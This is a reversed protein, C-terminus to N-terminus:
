LEIKKSMLYVIAYLAAIITVVEMLFQGTTLNYWSVQEFISEGESVSITQILGIQPIINDTGFLLYAIWGLVSQIAIFSIIGIWIRHKVKFSAAIAIALMIMIHFSLTCWLSFIFLSIIPIPKGWYELLETFDISELRPIMLSALIAGIVILSVAYILQLLLSAAIEQVPKVSLLRRNYSNLHSNFTSCVQLFLVIFAAAFATLSLGVVLVVM